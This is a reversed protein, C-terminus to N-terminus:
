EEMTDHRVASQSVPTRRLVGWVLLPVAALHLCAALLYWCTYAGPPALSTVPDPQLLRAVFSNMMMAGASSGAAVIGFVAGLSARPVVDVVLATMNALWALHMFVMLSAFALSGQASPAFAVMPSLPMFLACGAMVALRVRPASWGRRIFRGAIWGGALSGLGACLFMVWTIRVEAQSLGRVSVLYKPYWNQYFFWVPDSLMRGIMLCWVDVRGLAALFTWGRDVSEALPIGGNVAPDERETAREAVLPPEASGRWRGIWLWPVLWALGAAGTAVFAAPWGYREQLGVVIFPALTMGIPTGATYIGIALGRENSPFWESVAKPSATWNGAEGLGLLFRFAAFSAASRAVSTMLNAVSWWGVFLALSIRAGFRDVLLGSGLLAVTYAIQFVNQINAYDQDSLRLDDQITPALLSLTNKDVYNLVAALFLMMAILWRLDSHKKASSSM